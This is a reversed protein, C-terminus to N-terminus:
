GQETEIEYVSAGCLSYRWWLKSRRSIVTVINKMPVVNYDEGSELTVLLEAWQELAAKREEFYHHRNYIGEVGPIKHNLCREAIVPDIGLAAMQTRMTRRLDHISFPEVDPMEKLVSPLVM